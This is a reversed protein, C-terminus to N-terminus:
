HMVENVLRDTRWLPLTHPYADLQLCFVFDKNAELSNLRRVHSSQLLYAPLDAEAREWLHLAALTADSSTVDFGSAALRAALAGGFVTDELCFQGKWGACVVLVDKQQAEAFEVVAQLNLFAGVVVADAALSRRLAHTGNTTSIAVARGKVEVVGDLYGFPSNGLDFGAAARGDREAATLCGHQEGLARCEALEAVPFVHTVGNALATVISSTARLIDVVVVVKGPLHYLALLEPSFCLDVQPM